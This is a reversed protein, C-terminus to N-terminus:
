TRQFQRHKKAQERIRVGNSKDNSHSGLCDSLFTTRGFCIRPNLRQFQANLLQFLCQGLCQPGLGGFRRRRGFARGRYHLGLRSRISVVSRVDSALLPRVVVVLGEEARDPRQRRAVSSELREQISIKLCIKRRVALASIPFADETVFVVDPLAVRVEAAAALHPPDAETDRADDLLVPDNEHRVVQGVAAFLNVAPKPRCGDNVPADLRPPQHRSLKAVRDPQFRGREVAEQAHGLTRHHRVREGIRRARGHHRQNRRMAPPGRVGPKTHEPLVGTDVAVKVLPPAEM